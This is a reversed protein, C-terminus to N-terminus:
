PREGMIIRKAAMLGNRETIRDELLRKEILRAMRWRESLRTFDEETYDSIDILNSSSDNSYGMM